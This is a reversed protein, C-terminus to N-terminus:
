EEIIEIIKDKNVFINKVMEQFRSPFTRKQESTAEPGAASKMLKAPTTIKQPRYNVGIQKGTDLRTFRVDTNIPAGYFLLNRRNFKGGTIGGFGYNTTAGTINSLVCGVVGSNDEEPTKRLEVKIAGRPPMGNGYLAKLGLLATLYSGSVVACSHGAMKVIDLYTIEIIGDDNVGVFKALDDKLIIPDIEDFFAPYNV